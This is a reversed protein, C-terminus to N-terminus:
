VLDFSQYNYTLNLCVVQLSYAITFLEQTRKEKRQAFTNLSSFITEERNKEEGQM